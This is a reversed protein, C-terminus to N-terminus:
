LNESTDQRGLVRMIEVMQDQANVRYYISDVGCVSRRYGERINDVAPYVFPASTIKEFRAVLAQYYREAQHEGFETVGHWYIRALDMRAEHSLRYRM